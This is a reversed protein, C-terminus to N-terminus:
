RTSGRPAKQRIMIRGPDPPKGRAELEEILAVLKYRGEGLRSATEDLGRVSEALPETVTPVQELWEMLSPSVGALERLNAAFRTYEPERPLSALAALITSRAREMDAAVERLGQQLRPSPEATPSAAPALSSMAAMEERTAELGRGIERLGRVAEALPTTVKLVDSLSEALVPSVKAFEQM